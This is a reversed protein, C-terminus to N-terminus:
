PCISLHAPWSVQGVSEGRREMDAPPLEPLPTDGIEEEVQKLSRAPMAGAEGLAVARSRNERAMDRLAGVAEIMRPIERESLESKLLTRRVTDLLQTRRHTREADALANRPLAAAGVLAKVHDLEAKASVIDAARLSLAALLVIVVRVFVHMTWM